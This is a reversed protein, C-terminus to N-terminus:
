RLRVVTFGIGAHAPLAGGRPAAVNVALGEPADVRLLAYSATASPIRAETTLDAGGHVPPQLPYSGGSSTLEARLDLGQFTYRGDVPLGLGDLYLAATWPSVLDAWQSGVVSVVNDVGTRTTRTLGQLIWRGGDSGPNRGRVHELFLWGAGREQLTGSGPNFVLGTDDTRQLYARARDRNGDRYMEAREADGRIAFEDGVLEEATSALAESLWVADTGEAGRVLVRENFHVMHQFEHTLISPVSSLVQNRSRRQGFVGDPDPVLAYFIEGGNSGERGPLLDLGYFFGGVFGGSTAATLRNVVPTFLIVVRDNGDLDSESGFGERVTTHIPDDFESGFAALDGPEFSGDASLDLYVVGHEGVFRAEAEVTDFGGRGNYVSFTRRDGVEPVREPATALPAPVPGPGDRLLARERERLLRDWQEQVDEGGGLFSDGSVEGPLARLRPDPDPTTHAGSAASMGDSPHRLVLSYDHLLGAVPSTSHVVALYEVDAGGGLLLCSLAAPDSVTRVDGVALDMPAGPSEVTVTVPDSRLSGLGARVEVQPENLCAPVRVRLSTSGGGLVEARIGSFLVDNRDLETEFGTGQLTAEEGPVVPTPSVSELTPAPAARAEFEVPDANQGPVVARVTYVGPGSGLTLATRARQDGDTMSAPPTVSAGWGDVVTWQVEVPQELAQGDPRLVVVVLSDALATGPAAYQGHGSELLLEVRDGTEIGTPDGFCAASGLLFAIGLFWGAGRAAGGLRRRPRWRTM